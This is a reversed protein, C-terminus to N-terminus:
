ESLSEDIENVMEQVSVLGGGSLYWYDPNLYVINDNKYAKTKKTLDNEVVQKASSESGVVAGRDIVYLMEPNQEVVYEFSVNMGHTSVEINKDVAPVGFVDHIIGFRSNPGYASIKDDNALIILAEKNSAEAKEKLDAISKEIAELEKDIEDQKGFITGIKNLNEKFSDMYRTTDVGLHVTPAIEKLQDYLSAQRGSIIILDPNIQALKDFDPEKLSGANAYKDSKYKELYDPISGKPVGTVNVGLKDLTDLTGFDFVVVKEPNKPVDTEGLEHNVTVKEAEGSANGKDEESSDSSSGCAAVFVMLGSLVTILLLKRM